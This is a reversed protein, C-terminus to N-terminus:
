RLPPVWDSVPTLKLRRVQQEVTYAPRFQLAAIPTARTLAAPLAAFIAIMGREPYLLVAQGPLMLVLNGQSIGVAAPPGYRELLWGLTGYPALAIEQAEAVGITVALTCGDRTFRYTPPRGGTSAPPGFAARLQDTTTVGPRIAEVSEIPFAATCDGPPAPSLQPARTPLNFPATAAPTFPATLLVFPTVTQPRPTLTARGPLGGPSAATATRTPAPALVAGNARDPGTRPRLLVAAAILLVLMGGALLITRLRLM